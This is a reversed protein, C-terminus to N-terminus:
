EQEFKLNEQYKLSDKLRAIWNEDERSGPISERGFGFYANVTYPPLYVDSPDIRVYMDSAPVDSKLTFDCCHHAYPADPAVFQRQALCLHKGNELESLFRCEACNGRKVKRFTANARLLFVDKREMVVLYGERILSQVLTRDTMLNFEAAEEDTFEMEDWEEAEEDTAWPPAITNDLLVVAGYVIKSKRGEMTLEHHLSKVIHYRFLFQTEESEDESSVGGFLYSVIGTISHCEVPPEDRFKVLLEWEAAKEEELHRFFHKKWRNFLEGSELREQANSM